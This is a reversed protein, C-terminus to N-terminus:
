GICKAKPTYIQLDAHLQQIINILGGQSKCSYINSLM